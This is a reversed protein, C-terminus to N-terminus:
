DEAMSFDLGIDFFIDDDMVEVYASRVEVMHCRWKHAETDVFLPMEGGYKEKAEHLITIMEDITMPRDHVSKGIAGEAM